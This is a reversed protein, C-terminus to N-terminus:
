AVEEARRLQLADDCVLRLFQDERHLGSRADDIDRCHQTVPVLTEAEIWGVPPRQEAPRLAHARNAARERGIQAPRRTHAVARRAIVQEADSRHVTVAFGELCAALHDLIYGAEIQGLEDTAGEPRQAHQGFHRHAHERLGFV